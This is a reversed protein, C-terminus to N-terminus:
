PFSAAEQTTRYPSFSAAYADLMRSLLEEAVSTARPKEVGLSHLLQTLRSLAEEQSDAMHSEHRGGGGNRLQRRLRMRPLATRQILLAGAPLPLEECDSRSLPMYAAPSSQDQPHRGRSQVQAGHFGVWLEVAASASLRKASGEPRVCLNAGLVCRGVGSVGAAITAEVFLSLEPLWPTKLPM